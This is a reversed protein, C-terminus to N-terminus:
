KQFFLAIFNRQPYIMAFVGLDALVAFGAPTPLDETDAVFFFM